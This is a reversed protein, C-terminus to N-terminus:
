GLDEIVFGGYKVTVMNTKPTKEIASGDYWNDGEVSRFFIIFANKEEM